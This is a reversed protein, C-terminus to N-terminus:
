NLVVDRSNSGFTSKTESIHRIGSHSYRESICTYTHVRCSAREREELRNNRVVRSHDFLETGRTCDNETCLKADMDKAIEVSVFEVEM